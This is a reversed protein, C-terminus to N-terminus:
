GDLHRRIIIAVQHASEAPSGCSTDVSDPLNDRLRQGFLVQDEIDRSRWPPRAEIRHRREDDPCDLVVYHVDTVWRRGPLEDLHAPIFPGLLVTPLGNQAVGHAVHLWADRFAAWDVGAIGKEGGLPDILWDCDFVVAVGALEALLHPLITSKGSGSAGAM